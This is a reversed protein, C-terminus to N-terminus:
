MQTLFDLSMEKILNEQKLLKSPVGLARINICLGLYFQHLFIETVGCQNLERM